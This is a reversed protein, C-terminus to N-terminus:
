GNAQALAPQPATPQGSAPQGGAPALAQPPPLLKEIGAFNAVSLGSYELIDTFAKSLAPVQMLQAFGQPNSFIFRFINTIKDVMQPLNKQKGAVNVKVKYLKNKFEGKLIEVFGKNGKKLIQQKYLEIIKDREEPTVRKGEKLILDKVKQNGLNVSQKDAVWSLEDMSLESLFKVGNTVAKAIKPIYDDNYIEEIHKAFIGRRYEHLGMGQQIQAQLSAFPTGAVPEKGQLPDQSAAMDQAHSQWESVSKEFLALNRPFTDMQRTNGGAEEYVFEMNDMDKMGSPHRNVLSKDNTLMITKAAADLMDQIRIMDYNTWVQDEFLEEAGGFGLGRGYVPDRKALKFPNEKEESKFLTIWEKKDNAKTYFSVIHMQRTFHESTDNPDLFRNPLDGHVEYVEIYKGPTQSTTTNQAERKGERALLITADITATAGNDKEGWGAKSMEQLQSPSFFHKIGIPGSLIDTQDCFAISHLPVVERGKTISKSLGGGYDIRSVNLEDFFTDLDNERVFVDDHYKKILFSLHESDPDDVYIQVDKLDIDEARHQLNLIPRTINKVPKFDDKGTSLQSHSYLFSLNLHELMNWRWGGPLEIPQKFATEQTTIYSFISSYPNKNEM